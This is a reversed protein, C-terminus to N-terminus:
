DSSCQNVREWKEGRARIRAPRQEFSTGEGCDHITRLQARRLEIHLSRQIRRSLALLGGIAVSTSVVDAM